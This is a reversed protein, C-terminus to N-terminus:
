AGREAEMKAVLRDVEEISVPRSFLYGQVMECGFGRLIELQTETEVGEAVVVLDLSHALAIIARVLPAEHSQETVASVFSRDIKLTDVPSSHLRGFVSTGTGFDDIALRVGLAHLADIVRPLDADSLVVRDTIELEVLHPPVGTQQMEMALVEALQPNALARTSLNVSVRLPRGSEAWIRAQNFATCRVWEDIAVILGSEEALPLFSDPALLGQTPHQWRVLAEVGLVRKTRIDVQPQYLVRLEDNGLAKHLQSELELQMRRPENLEGANRAFTGRGGAKAAYMALDSHQQLSAYDNGDEPSCAVGVSCSVFLEHGSVTFPRHLLNILREAVDVAVHPGDIEPIVVVFEDGGLRALTDTARMAAQMRHAVQRILEDGANHGLTDNVNKFRDLDIFLLGVSKHSRAAGAFALHARDEALVRNPLGTLRDHLAQEQMRELLNANEIATAAHDALGALRDVVETRRDAALDTRYGAGLVGLFEGKSVIPMLAMLPLGEVMWRNALEVEDRRLLMVQPDHVMAQVHMMDFGLTAPAHFGGESDDALGKLRLLEAPGDYLFVAAPGCGAVAPMAAAVRNAIDEITGVEALDRALSLLATTLDRDRRAQSLSAIVELASAAHGAFAALMRLDRGVVPTGAGFFAALRGYVRGRAAVDVAVVGDAETLEGAMLKEAARKVKRQEFGVSQVIPDAEDDLQVYLLYRPAPLASTVQKLIRRMVGDVDEAGVLDSAMAQMEEFRKIREDVRGASEDVGPIFVAPGHGPSWSIRFQCSPAGHLQCHREIGTGVLGFAAPVAAYFGVLFQCFVKHGYATNGYTSELVVHSEGRETVAIPRSNSLRASHTALMEIAASPNARALWTDQYQDATARYLEEGARLGMQTDGCVTEAAEVLRLVQDRTRWAAVVHIDAVDPEGALLDELDRMGETGAARAVYKLLMAPMEAPVQRIARATTSMAM